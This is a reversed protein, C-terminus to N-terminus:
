YIRESKGERERCVRSRQVREGPSVRSTERERAGGGRGRGGEREGEHIADGTRSFIERVTEEEGEEVGECMETKKEDHVHELRNHLWTEKREWMHRRETGYTDGNQGMHIRIYIYYIYVYM